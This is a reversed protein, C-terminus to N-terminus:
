LEEFTESFIRALTRTRYHALPWPVGFTKTNRLFKLPNLHQVVFVFVCLKFVQTTETQKRKCNNNTTLKPTQLFECLVTLIAANKSESAGIKNELVCSYRGNDERSVKKIVLSPQDM